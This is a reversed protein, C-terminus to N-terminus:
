LKIDNESLFKYSYDDSLIWNGNDNNATNTVIDALKSVYEPEYKEFYPLAYEIAEISGTSCVNKLVDTLKKNEKIKYLDKFKVSVWEENENKYAIVENQCIISSQEYDGYDIFWGCAALPQTNFKCVFEEGFYVYNIEATYWLHKNEGIGRYLDFINYDVNISFQNKQVIGKQYDIGSFINDTNFFFNLVFCLIICIFDIAIFQGKENTEITYKSNFINILSMFILTRIFISTVGYLEAGGNIYYTFNFDYNGTSIIKEINYKSYINNVFAIMNAGVILLCLLGLILLIVNAKLKRKDKHVVGKPKWILFIVTIVLIILIVHFIDRIFKDKIINETNVFVYIIDLVCKVPLIMASAKLIKKYEYKTSTTMLCIVFLAVFEFLNLIFFHMLHWEFEEPRICIVINTGIDFVFFLSEFLFIKFCLKIKDM